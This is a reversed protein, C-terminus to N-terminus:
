KLVYTLDLRQSDKQSCYLFSFFHAYFPTQVRLQYVDQFQPFKFWASVSRNLGENLSKSGNIRIYDDTGDFDFAGNNRGFRDEITVINGGSSAQNANQSFDITNGNLPFYAALSDTIAQGFGIGFLGLCIWIIKNM